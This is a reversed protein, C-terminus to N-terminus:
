VFYLFHNYNSGDFHQHSTEAEM